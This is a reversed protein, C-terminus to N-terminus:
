HCLNVAIFSSNVWREVVTNQGGFRLEDPIEIAGLIAPNAVFPLAFLDWFAVVCIFPYM